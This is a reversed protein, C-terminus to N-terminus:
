LEQAVSEDKAEEMTPMEVGEDTDHETDDDNIADLVLKAAPPNSASDNSRKRPNSASDDSHKRMARRAPNTATDRSATAHQKNSAARTVTGTCSSRNSVASVKQTATRSKRCGIRHPYSTKNVGCPVQSLKNSSM